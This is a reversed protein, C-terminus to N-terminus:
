RDGLTRSSAGISGRPAVESRASTMTVPRICGEEDYELREVCVQRSGAYPGEGRVDNWRHYFILWGGNRPDRLIAHHGPGKHHSDSALIAGRYQWPGVPTTSTAYHVSYDSRQWDGHSYSLYYCGEREHLFAGETFNPPTEVAVERAFSIMDENMEFVRLRSGGSGGAYLWSKGSKSDTFVMPDIAEFGEGGTLLPKGL